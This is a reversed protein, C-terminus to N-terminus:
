LYNRKDYKEFWTNMIRSRTKICHEILLHRSEQVETTQEHVTTNCNDFTHRGIIEQEIENISKQIRANFDGMSFTPGKVQSKTQTTHLTEYFSNKEEEAGNSTFAYASIFTIPQKSSFTISM